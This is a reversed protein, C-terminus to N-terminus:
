NKKNVEDDEKPLVPTGQCAVVNEKRWLDNLSKPLVLSEKYEYTDLYLSAPVHIELNKILKTKPDYSVFDWEFSDWNRKELLIDGNKSCCLPRGVYPQGLDITFQKTWSSGVGYEKMVWLCCSHDVDRHFISLSEGFLIFRVCWDPSNQGCPPVMVVGLTDNRMDFSVIFPHFGSGVKCKQNYGAWHVVGNFLVPQNSPSIVYPYDGVNIDRWSSTSLEFLEVKPPTLLELDGDLIIYTTTLKVIKYDNSIPDIGFGIHYFAGSERVACPKPLIISKKLSPNWLAVIYENLDYLCVLGNCIGAIRIYRNEKTIHPLDLEVFEEFTDNNYHLSCHKKKNLSYEQRLLLLPAPNNRNNLQHTTIFFPSTILSYWSKSVSTCLLLTKVPLRSLIETLLEAPLHYDLTMQKLKTESFGEEMVTSPSLERNTRGLEIEDSNQGEALIGDM